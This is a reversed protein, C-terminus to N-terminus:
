ETLPIRSGALHRVLADAVQQHGRLTWGSAGFGTEQPTNSRARVGVSSGCMPDRSAAAQRGGM